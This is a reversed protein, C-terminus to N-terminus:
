LNLSNFAEELAVYYDENGTWGEYREPLTIEAEDVADEKGITDWIWDLIPPSSSENPDVRIKRYGHLLLYDYARNDYAPDRYSRLEYM